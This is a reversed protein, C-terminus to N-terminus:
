APAEAAPHVWATCAPDHALPVGEDRAGLRRAVRISAANGTDINSTLPGDHRAQWWDRAAAAAETAFGQGTGRDWLSWGLEPAPHHPPFHVGAIGIAGAGDALTWRGYGHLLWHVADAAFSKWAARADLPGGIIAARESAYFDRYASWDALAPARLTLRATRIVPIAQGESRPSPSATRGTIHARTM